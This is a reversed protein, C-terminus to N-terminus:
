INEKQLGFKFYCFNFRGVMDDRGSKWVWIIITTCLALARRTRTKKGRLKFQPLKEICFTFFFSRLNNCSPTEAFLEIHYRQLQIENIKGPADLSARMAHSAFHFILLYWNLISYSRAQHFLLVDSPIPYVMLYVGFISVSDIKKLINQFRIM